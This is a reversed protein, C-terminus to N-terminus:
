KASPPQANGITKRYAAYLDFLRDVSAPDSRALLTILDDRQALLPKLGDRQAQSFVSDDMRDMETRLDTFFESATARAAEYDGRRADASASALASRIRCIRLERRAEDRENARSNAVLWMPVLGLLFMGVLVAAYVIIRKRRDDKQVQESKNADSM